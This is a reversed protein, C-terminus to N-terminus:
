AVNSFTGSTKFNNGSSHGARIALRAGRASPATGCHFAVLSGQGRCRSPGKRSNGLSHRLSKRVGRSLLGAVIVMIETVGLTCFFSLAGSFASVSKSNVGSSYGARADRRLERSVTSCPPFCLAGRAGADQPVRGPLQRFIEPLTGIGKRPCTKQSRM